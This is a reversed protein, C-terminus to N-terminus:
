RVIIRGEFAPVGIYAHDHYRCTQPSTFAGTQRSQGPVIFGAADIEPCEPQSPEPGGSFDHPRTDANVFTVRTGVAVIIEPPSVGAASVTVVASSVPPAEPPAAVVPPTPTTPTESPSGSCGAVLASSAVLLAIPRVVSMM